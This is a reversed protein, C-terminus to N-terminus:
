GGRGVNNQHAVLEELVADLLEEHSSDRRMATREIGSPLHVVRIFDGGEARGTDLRIDADNFLLRRLEAILSDRTRGVAYPAVPDVCRHNGTPKHTVRVFTGRKSQGIEIDFDSPRIM